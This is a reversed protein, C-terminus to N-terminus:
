FDFVVTRATLEAVFPRFATPRQRTTYTRTDFHVAAWRHGDDPALGSSVHEWALGTRKASGHDLLFIASRARLAALNPLLGEAMLRDGLTAEYGDLGVVLVRSRAM